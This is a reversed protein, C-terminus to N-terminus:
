LPRARPSGALLHSPYNTLPLPFLPVPAISNVRVWEMTGEEKGRGQEGIGRGGRGEGEGGSVGAWRFPDLLSWFLNMLSVVLNIDSTPALERCNKRVFCVAPDVLWVFLQQIRTRHEPTLSEPLTHM